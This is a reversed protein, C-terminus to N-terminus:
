LFKTRMWDTSQRSLVVFSLSSSRSGSQRWIPINAKKMGKYEFQFMPDEQTELKGVASQSKDAEM